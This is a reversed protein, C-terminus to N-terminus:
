CGLLRPLVINVIILVVIPTFDFPGAMPLVRRVPALVPETLQVLVRVVPAFPSDYNVPFWSSVVRLIIIIGYLNLLGCILGM